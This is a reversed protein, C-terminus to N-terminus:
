TSPTPEIRAPEVPTGPPLPEPNLLVRGANIRLEYTPIKETYPPPSQGTAPRYQYGHWPCTICGDIIQGEALPGGQHACVNSVASLSDAHRFVAIRERGKPCVVIARTDPISSAPGLDIWGATDSSVDSADVDARNEKFAAALHTTVVVLAGALIAYAYLPSTESQLAGFVVHLVVLGYATYVLMHLSKWVRPTLNALWFDHSTAAMAFFVLLALLGLFEFPFASITAFSDYGAFIASAPDRRGFGGYFLTSLAGHFLAVVFFTVGLHRRNYLLPAFRDSFRALPGILLIVHLLIIALTSTARILLVPISIDGPPPFAVVGGVVFTALYALAMTLLITDYLKKHPNWQVWKYSATM